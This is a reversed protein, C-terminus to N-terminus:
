GRRGKWRFPLMLGLIGAVPVYILQFLQAIFYYGTLSSKGFFRMMIWVMPYDLLIKVLWFLLSFSLITPYFIGALMGSLLLTHILYTVAGVVIVVPDRYGRSKSVWRIRQHIFGTLTAEPVTGVNSLPDINFVLSGKGYHKRIAGMMFQDDGSLYKLNGSFGGTQLFSDRRYALNAGNCMVPYGLAASGATTGM